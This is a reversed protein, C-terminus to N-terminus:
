HSEIDVPVGVGGAGGGGRAEICVKGNEIPYCQSYIPEEFDGVTQVEPGPSGLLEQFGWYILTVYFAAFAIAVFWKLM